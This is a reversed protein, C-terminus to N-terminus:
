RHKYHTCYMSHLKTTTGKKEDLSWNGLEAPNVAATGVATSSPPLYTVNFSYVPQEKNEDYLKSLSNQMISSKGEVCSNEFTLSKDMYSKSMTSPYQKNFPPM